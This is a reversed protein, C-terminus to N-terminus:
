FRGEWGERPDVLPKVFSSKMPGYWEERDLVATLADATVFDDHVLEGFSGRTGEPVGWRMVKGAGPLIEAQCATYQERVEDTPNSDRFRGSGIIALFQWGIESKEKQSYKVPIVRTPMARDLLAWLGEGVGTADVVVKLPKWTEALAKLQGFIALHNLGTWRMRREVRYTPKGLDGVSDMDVEVITLVTSDRGPNTLPEDENPKMRKEDQGAVDLLFAYM